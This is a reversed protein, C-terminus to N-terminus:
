KVIEVLGTLDVTVCPMMVGGIKPDCCPRGLDKGHREYATARRQHTNCWLLPMACCRCPHAKKDTGLGGGAMGNGHCEECDPNPDNALEILPGHEHNALMEAAVAAPDYNCKGTAKAELRSLVNLSTALKPFRENADMPEPGFCALRDALTLKHIEGTDQNM